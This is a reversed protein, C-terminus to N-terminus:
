IQNSKFNILNFRIQDSKIWFQDSKFSIQNSVSKVWVSKFQNSRVQFQNSKFSFRVSSFQVIFNAWFNEFSWFEFFFTFSCYSVMWHDYFFSFYSMLNTEDHRMSHHYIYTELMLLHCSIAVFMYFTFHLIIESGISPPSMYKGGNSADHHSSDM